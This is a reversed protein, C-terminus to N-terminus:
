LNKEYYNIEKKNLGMWGYIEYREKKNRKQLIYFIEGEVEGDDKYNTIEAFLFKNVKKFRQPLDILYGLIIDGYSRKKEYYSSTEYRQIDKGELDAKIFNIFFDELIDKNKQDKLYEIDLLSYYLDENLPEKTYKKLM